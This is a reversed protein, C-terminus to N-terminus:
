QYVNRQLSIINISRYIYQTDEMLTNNGHALRPGIVRRNDGLFCRIKTKTIIKGNLKAETFDLVVGEDRMMERVKTEVFENVNYKTYSKNTASPSEVVNAPEARVIMEDNKNHDFGNDRQIPINRSIVNDTVQSNDSDM